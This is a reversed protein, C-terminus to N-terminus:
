QQAGQDLKAREAAAAQPTLPLYKEPGEAFVAQGEPSLIFRLFERLAPRLKAPETVTLGLYITRTFPYVRGAVEAHSGQYYPGAETEAIRLPKVGSTAFAFGSFGIAYRNEAVLRVINTLMHHDLDPGTTDIQYLSRRFGAEDSGFLRKRLYNTIGMPNGDPDQMPANYIRIPADAWEGTLGLQGWNKIAGDRAYIARIQDVTIRQLPNAANVYLALAHTGSKTAYSGTGVALVMPTGGLKRGLREIELPMPERASPILDVDDSAIATDYADTTLHTADRLEFKADPHTQQFNRVWAAMLEDTAHNGMYVIGGATEATATGSLCLLASAIVGIFRKSLVM